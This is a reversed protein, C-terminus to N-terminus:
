RLQILMLYYMMLQEKIDLSSLHDLKLNLLSKQREKIQYNIIGQAFSETNTVTSLIKKLKQETTPQVSLQIDLM